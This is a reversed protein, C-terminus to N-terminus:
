VGGMREDRQSNLWFLFVCSVEHTTNTCSEKGLLLARFAYLIKGVLRRDRGPWPDLILAEM